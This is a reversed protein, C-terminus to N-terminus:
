QLLHDLAEVLEKAQKLSMTPHTPLSLIEECVAEAALDNGMEYGTDPLHVSAPCVVCGTWGDHLHINKKKLARRIKEAGRVFLPFKQLPSEQVVILNDGQARRLTSLKAETWPEVREGPCFCHLMPWRRKKGEELFFKTLMRRHDNLERLRELQELALAACVDPIRHLVTRMRGHKEDSTLIPRLAGIKSHLFLSFKGMGLGYFLKAWGYINPYELLRLITFFSLDHAHKAMRELTPNASAVRSIIAGGTIGSIAKDRGFSLLLADGETGIDRPGTEDPIVHACDEILLIGHRDCIERLRKTDAPIGFTHQCIIACTKPTILVEIEECDLSLTDREIDCYVTKLGAAHIANPVVVCTYSQIIVEDGPKSPISQLFAFLAERGTSFLFARGGFKEELARRLKESYPGRKYRWPLYSLARACRRLRADALPAFTHHIPSFLSM